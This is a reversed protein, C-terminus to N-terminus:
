SAERCLCCWLPRIIELRELIAAREIEAVFIM